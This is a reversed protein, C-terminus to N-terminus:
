SAQEELAAKVVKYDAEPWERINGQFALKWNQEPWRKVFELEEYLDEAPVWREPDTIAVEPSIHFRWPYDEGPKSEWIPEHDEFYESTVEATAGFAVHKTIYYVVKDGPQIQEATRQRRSKIGQVTWGLEATRAFNDPSTTLCWIRM